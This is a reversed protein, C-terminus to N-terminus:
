PRKHDIQCVIIGTILDGSQDVMNKDCLKWKHNLLNYAMMNNFRGPNHQWPGAYGSINLHCRGYSHGGLILTVMQQETVGAREQFIRRM